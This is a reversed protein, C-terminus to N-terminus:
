KWFSISMFAEKNEPIRAFHMVLEFFLFMVNLLFAGKLLMNLVVYLLNSNNIMMIAFSVGYSLAAAFFLIFAMVLEYKEGKHALNYIKYGTIGLVVIFCVLYILEDITM